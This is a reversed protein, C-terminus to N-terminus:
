IRAFELVTEPENNINILILTSCKIYVECCRNSKYVSNKFVATLYNYSGSLQKHFNKMNIIQGKNLGQRM